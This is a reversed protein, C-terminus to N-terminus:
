TQDKVCVMKQGRCGGPVCMSCLHLAPLIGMCVFYVIKFIFYFSKVCACLQSHLTFTNAVSGSLGSNLRQPGVPLLFFFWHGLATTSVQVRIGLFICM